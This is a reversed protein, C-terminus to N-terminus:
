VVPHAVDHIDLIQLGTGVLAVYAIDNSGFAVDRTPGTPYPPWVGRFRIPFGPKGTTGLAPLAGGGGSARGGAPDAAAVEDAPRFLLAALLLTRCASAREGRRTATDEMNHVERLADGFPRM